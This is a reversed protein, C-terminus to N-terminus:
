KTFHRDDPTTHGSEWKQYARLSTGIADAAQKQSLSERNRM